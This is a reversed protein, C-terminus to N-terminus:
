WGDAASELAEVDAYLHKFAEWGPSDGAHLVHHIGKLPLKALQAVEALVRSAPLGEKQGKLWLLGRMTRMLNHVWNRQLLALRSKKGRAILLGQRLGILLVDLERECQLRINRDDFKLEAFHDNGFVVRHHQHIEILELPFTSRSAEVFRPTMIVPPALGARGHRPGEAALAHLLDLDVSELMLVSQIAHRPRAYKEAVKEAVVAGFLTWALANDKALERIRDAFRRLPERIPQPLDDLEPVTIISTPQGALV